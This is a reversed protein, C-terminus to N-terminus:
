SYGVLQFRVFSSLLHLWLLLLMLATNRLLFVDKRTSCYKYDRHGLKCRMLRPRMM